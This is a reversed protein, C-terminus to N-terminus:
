TDPDPFMIAVAPRRLLVVNVSSPYIRGAAKLEAIAEADPGSELRLHDEGEVLEDLARKFARFATGKPADMLQDLTRFTMLNEGRFQFPQWMTM